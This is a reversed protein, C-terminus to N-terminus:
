GHFERRFSHEQLEVLLVDFLKQAIVKSLGVEAAHELTHKATFQARIVDNHCMELLEAFLSPNALSYVRNGSTWFGIRVRAPDRRSVTDLVDGPVVSDLDVPSSSRLKIRVPGFQAELWPEDIFRPQTEHCTDGVKELVVLDGTRWDTPVAVDPMIFKLSMAEFHPM